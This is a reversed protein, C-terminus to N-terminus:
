LIRQRALISVGSKDNNRNPEGVKSTLNIGNRFINIKKKCEFKQSDM